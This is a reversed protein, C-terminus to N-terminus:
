PTGKLWAQLWPHQVLDPCCVGVYRMFEDRVALLMTALSERDMYEVAPDPQWKTDSLCTARYGNKEPAFVVKRESGQEYFDIEFPSGAEIATLAQPLQELLVSLDLWVDVPWRSEGFGSIRLTGHQAAFDAVDTFISRVDDMEPDYTRAQMREHVSDPLHLEIQM